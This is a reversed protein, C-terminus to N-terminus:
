QVDAAFRGAEPWWTGQGSVIGKGPAVCLEGFCVDDCEGADPGPEWGYCVTGDPQRTRVDYDGGHLTKDIGAPFGPPGAFVTEADDDQGEIVFWVGAPSVQVASVLKRGVNDEEGNTTWDLRARTVSGTVAVDRTTAVVVDREPAEQDLDEGGDPLASVLTSTAGEVLVAAWEPPTGPDTTPASPSASNGGCGAILFVLSCRALKM